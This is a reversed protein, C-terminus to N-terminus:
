LTRGCIGDPSGCGTQGYIRSSSSSLIRLMDQLALHESAVDTVDRVARKGVQLDAQVSWEQSPM